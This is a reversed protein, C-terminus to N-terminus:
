LNFKKAFKFKGRRIELVGVCIGKYFTLILSEGGATVVDKHDIFGGASLFKYDKETLEVNFAHPFIKKASLIDKESVDDIKKANKVKFDGVSLRRLDEIYGGCKLKKGLDHALSRIYTGSGCKVKLKLVPWKYSLIKIRQIKVPRKKLVVKKNKRALEHARKGEIQIASYVPPAQMIEGTFDSKLIKEIEKRLPKGPDKVAKIKGDADYTDSEAGFRVVAEYEKDTKELFTILKTSEGLAFIMLGTALPDLTGVFGIRKM